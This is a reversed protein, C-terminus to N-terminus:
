SVFHVMCNSKSRGAKKLKQVKSRSVSTLTDM